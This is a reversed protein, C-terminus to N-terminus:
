LLANLQVACQMKIANLAFFTLVIKSWVMRFSVNTIWAGQSNRFVQFKNKIEKLKFVVGFPLLLSYFGSSIFVQPILNFPSVNDTVTIVAQDCPHVNSSVFM